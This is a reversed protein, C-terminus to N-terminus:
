IRPRASNVVPKPKMTDDARELANPNVVVATSTALLWGDVWEQLFRLERRGGLRAARLKGARVANYISREGCKARAAAEDVTLWPTAIQNSDSLVTSGSGTIEREDEPNGLASHRVEM